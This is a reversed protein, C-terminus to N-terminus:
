EASWIEYAQLMADARFIGEDIEVSYQELLYALFGAIFARQEPSCARVVDNDHGDRILHLLLQHV